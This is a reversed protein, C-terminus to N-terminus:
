SEPIPAPREETLLKPANRRAYLQFAELTAMCFGAWALGIVIGAAVDSPYHVGLYLRSGCILLIILAALTMIAVRAAHTRQLRAALYAVTSYVITASMAHGSPFSYFAATTAWPIVDPRPRSFGLKLLNNLVMGGITAVLLLVASHRHQNLWLFLAAVGVIMFVVAGTGLSTIELMVPDLSSSRHLGIWQLVATDFAQTGGSRVHGALMAFGWTGALAIAAGMLVFIGFTAYANHAHRAIFRLVDFIVDWFRRLHQRTDPGAEVSTRREQPSSSM